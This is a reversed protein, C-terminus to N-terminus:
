KFDETHYRIDVGNESGSFADFLMTSFMISFLTLTLVYGQKVGNKVPFAVSSEGNDQVRSYMGDYFKRVITIFKKPCGYKAMIRWLGNRQGHWIGHDSWCLDLLPWHSLDQWFNFTLLNQPSQHMGTLERETQLYPHHLRGQLWATATREGM